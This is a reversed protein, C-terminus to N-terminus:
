EVRDTGLLASLSRRLAEIDPKTVQVVIGSATTEADNSRDRTYLLARVHRTPEAALMRAAVHSADLGDVARELVVADPPSAGLQILASAVDSYVRVEYEEGLGRATAHADDGNGDIVVVHPRSAALAQPIPYGYKRLFDLVDARRFRLHRGPTRFHPIENRDAWNHITKLDVQCFRAV